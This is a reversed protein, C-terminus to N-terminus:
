RNPTHSNFSYSANLKRIQTQNSGLMLAYKKKKQVQLTNKRDNTTHASLDKRTNKLSTHGVQNVLKSISELGFTNSSNILLNKLTPLGTLTKIFM